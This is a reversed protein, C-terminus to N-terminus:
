EAVKIPVFGVVGTRMSIQFWDGAIGVVHVFHKRHVSGVVRSTDDPAEYVPSDRMLMFRRDLPRVKLGGPPTGASAIPATPLAAATPPPVTPPPVLNPDLARAEASEAQSDAQRGPQSGLLNALALHAQASRPHLGVATRLEDEAGGNKGEKILVSALEMRYNIRTPDLVCAARYLAEAMGYQAQGAYLNALAAHANADDPKLELVKAFEIKAPGAKQEFLYLNGLATHARPDDPKLGIASQYDLEAEALKSDHMAQDGSRLYDDVSSKRQCGAAWLILLVLVGMACAAWPAIGATRSKLNGWARVIIMM